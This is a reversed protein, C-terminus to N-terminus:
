VDSSYFPNILIIIFLHLNIQMTDLFGLCSSFILRSVPKPINNTLVYWKGISWQIFYYTTLLLLINYVSSDFIISRVELYNCSTKIKWKIQHTHYIFITHSRLILEQNTLRIAHKFNFMLVVEDSRNSHQSVFQVLVSIHIHFSCALDKNRILCPIM